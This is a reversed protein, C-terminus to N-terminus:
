RALADGIKYIDGAGVTVIIDGKRAITRLKAIIEDFTPCYVAGAIQDALDKSSIGVTNKERAAYIDALFLVDARSLAAVFGDFLAKTRTYTHPQFVLLVRNYKLLFLADLLAHIERPHHAYDDYIDAGNCAGKYQLRRDVGPFEALGRAIVQASLGLSLCTAAAALANTVNHFGPIRLAIKGCPIGDFLLDFSMGAGAKQINEARVRADASLGFTFLPRNLPLLADLTNPDDANCVIHGGAPVLSAFQRFSAKVDDLGGFFDLHEADVNLIVAKTPFFSHFSNCYECAELIITDGSGLCYGSGLTPLTGGIMVTPDANASLLIQAVMSTTTTKGHAGAVCVANQYGRMIAGWAQAREFVPVGLRRAGAIEPNDDHAAATRIVFNAGDINKEDHGIQIDIGLAQLKHVAASENIDSGTVPVGLSFLLEALPAMSVGGIGVMHCQAGSKILAEFDTAFM